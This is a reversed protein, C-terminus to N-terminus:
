SFFVTECEGTGGSLILLRGAGSAGTARVGSGWRSPKLDKFALSFVEGWAGPWADVRCPALVEPGQLHPYPHQGRADFAMRAEWGPDGRQASVTERTRYFALEPDAALGISPM